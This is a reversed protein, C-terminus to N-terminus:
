QAPALAAPLTSALLAGDREIAARVGAVSVTRAFRDATAAAPAAEITIPAPAAGPTTPAAAPRVRVAGRAIATPDGLDVAARTENRAVRVRALDLQRALVRARARDD